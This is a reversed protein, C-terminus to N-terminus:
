FEAPPRLTLPARIRVAGSDDSDSDDTDVADEGAPTFAAVASWVERKESPHDAGPAPVVTASADLLDVVRGCSVTLQQLPRKKTRSRRPAAYPSKAARRRDVAATSKAVAGEEERRKMSARLTMSATLNHVQDLVVELSGQRFSTSAKSLARTPSESSRTPRTDEGRTSSEAGQRRRAM